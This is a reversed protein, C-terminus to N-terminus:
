HFTIGLGFQFVDAQEGDISFGIANVYPSLSWGPGVRVDYGLGLLAGGGSESVTTSGQSLSVQGAGLGLNVFFGGDAQPYLRSVLLLTAFNVRVGDVEKTWGTTGAGLLFRPSITGGLSLNGSLGDERDSFGEIGLSGYGLGFSIWFGEREHPHAQAAAEGASGLIAIAAMAGLVLMGAGRSGRRTKTM